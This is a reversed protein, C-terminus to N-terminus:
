CFALAQRLEEHEFASAMRDMEASAAGVDRAVERWRRTAGAVQGLISRADALSLAFYGAASECLFSTQRRRGNKRACLFSTQRRRGNKRACVLFLDTEKQWKESCLALSLDTKKYAGALDV